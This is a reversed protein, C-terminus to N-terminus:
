VKVIHKCFKTTKKFDPCDHVINVRQEDQFINVVYKSNGSGQINALIKIKPSKVVNFNIINKNPINKGRNFRAGMVHRKFLDGNQLYNKIEIKNM